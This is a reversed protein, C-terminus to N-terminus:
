LGLLRRRIASRTSIPSRKASYPEGLMANAFARFRDPDFGVGMFSWPTMSRIAYDIPSRGVRPSGNVKDEFITMPTSAQLIKRPTRDLGRISHTHGQSPAPVERINDDPLGLRIERGAFFIGRNRGNEVETKICKTPNGDNMGRWTYWKGVQFYTVPKSPTSSVRRICDSRSWFSDGGDLEVCYPITSGDDKLLRGTKGVREPKFNYGQKIVEVREGVQIREM